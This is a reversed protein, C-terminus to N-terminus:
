HINLKDSAAIDKLPIVCKLENAPESSSIKCSIKDRTIYRRQVM